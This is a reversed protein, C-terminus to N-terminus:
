EDKIKDAIKSFLESLNECMELTLDVGFYEDCMEYITFKGENQYINFVRQEAIKKLTEECKGFSIGEVMEKKDKDWREM